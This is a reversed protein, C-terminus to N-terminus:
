LRGGFSGVPRTRGEGRRQSLDLLQAKSARKMEYPTANLPLQPEGNPLTGVTPTMRVWELSDNLAIVATRVTEPSPLQDHESLYAVIKQQDEVVDALRIDGTDVLKQYYAYAATEDAAIRRKALANKAYTQLDRLAEDEYDEDLKVIMNGVSAPDIGRETVLSILKAHLQSDITRLTELNVSVKNDSLM